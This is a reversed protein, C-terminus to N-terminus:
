APAGPSRVGAPDGSDLSEKDGLDALAARLQEDTATKLDPFRVTSDSKEAWEGLEKAEQEGVARIERSLAVDAVYEPIIKQAKGTGVTKIQRVVFGGKGGPVKGLSPDEGREKVILWLRRQIERYMSLRAERNGIVTEVVAETVRVSLETIRAKVETNRLLKEASQAAGNKSYGAKVYAATASLGSAGIYAAFQEHRPNKLPPM